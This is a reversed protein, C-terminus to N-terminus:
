QYLIENVDLKESKGKVEVPPLSCTRIDQGIREHTEKTVLIQGPKAIGSFRSAVNVADGIVTFEMREPSGINGLFVEGTSVGIGINMYFGYRAEWRRNLEPLRKMMAVAAAVANREPNELPILSGFVAVIADGIYKDLSGQHEFIIAAMETFYENLIQVLQDPPRNETITTFNRIDSFMVTVIKRDGGLNVQVDRHVIKEVIQPSLYRSLNTRVTEDKKMQDAMRANEISVAGHGALTQLLEVDERTFFHGSKKHGVALLGKFEGRHLLPIAISASLEEFRKGCSARIERFRPDEAVDYKTIMKKEDSVLAVLPDDPPIPVEREEGAGEGRGGGGIFHGRLAEGKAGALVLGSTDIFMVDRITHVVERVIERLDLMSALADSVSLVTEKYDVRKRFFLRDVSGQIRRNVPNFLFVVILAFLLPYVTEARAGFMPGLVYAKLGIQAFFYVGGVIGTMIGYGVARKIFVDVDFLNHRVISYAVGLPFILAPIAYLNSLVKMGGITGGFSAVFPPIIAIPFGLAASFLIVKARQRALASAGRAFSWLSTALFGAVALHLYTYEVGKFVFFIPRPYALLPVYIVASLVYPLALWQPRRELIGRREPFIASLHVVVANLFSTCFLLLWVMGSHSSEVDFSAVMIISEVGCALLFVRSVWDDPKLVFVVAGIALYLMGLLLFVGFTALFDAASFRMTPIALELQRGRRDVTYLIPAGVKEREVADRLDGPLLIDRGNAKVIRDQGVLGARTGTWGVQGINGVAVRRNVLFGPFPKGIWEYAM